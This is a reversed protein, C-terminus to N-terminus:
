VNGYKTTEKNKPLNFTYRIVACNTILGAHM